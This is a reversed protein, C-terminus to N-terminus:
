EDVASCKIFNYVLCKCIISITLDIGYKELM